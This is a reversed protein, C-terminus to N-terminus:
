EMFDEYQLSKERVTKKVKELCKFKQVTASRAGSFGFRRSLTEMDTKRYYFASLLEMCKSGATSLLQMLRQRSATGTGTTASPESGPFQMHDTYLMRNKDERKKRWLHRVIGLLYAQASQQPAFSDATVKEYYIVLADQFIDKAEELSGGSRAIHRAALPFARKYLATLGMTEAVPSKETVRSEFQM